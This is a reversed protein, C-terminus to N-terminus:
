KLWFHVEEVAKGTNLQLSIKDPFQTDQPLIIKVREELIEGNNLSFKKTNVQVASSYMNLEYDTRGSEFSRVGYGFFVSNETADFITSNPLIYLASYSEKGVFIFFYSTIIGLAIAIIVAYAIVDTRYNMNAYLYNKRQVILIKAPLRISYTYTKNYISFKLLNM